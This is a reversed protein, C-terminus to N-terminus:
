WNLFETRAAQADAECAYLRKQLKVAAKVLAEKERKARREM